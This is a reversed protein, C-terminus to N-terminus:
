LMEQSFPTTFFCVGSFLEPFFRGPGQFLEVLFGWLYNGPTYASVSPRFGMSPPFTWPSHDMKTHIFPSPSQFIPTRASIRCTQFRSKRTKTQGHPQDCGAPDQPFRTCWSTCAHKKPDIGPVLEGAHLLLPFPIPVTPFDEVGKGQPGVAARDRVSVPSMLRAERPPPEVFEPLLVAAVVLPPPPMWKGVHGRFPPVAAAM